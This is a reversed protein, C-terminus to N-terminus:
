RMVIMKGTLTRQKTTLRYFYVGSQLLSADFEVQYTGATLERDVLTQVRQGLINFVVLQVYSTRALDYRITTVPNFPNPYNQFLQLVAPLESGEGIDVITGYQISNIIAGTLVFTDSPEVEWRV